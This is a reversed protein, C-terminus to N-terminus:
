CNNIEVNNMKLGKCKHCKIAEDGSTEIKVNNFSVDEIITDENGKIVCPSDSKMRMDSFSVGKIQSLKVGPEVEIRVPHRKSNIVINSFLINSVDASGSRGKALYRNPFDFNIGNNNSSMTINTFTCNRVIHDSPCSIRVCQCTSELTCNSIVVNECIGPTDHVHQMSRLVICDDDTKIFCDSITVDKCSDIDLGDNNIMRQDGIIKIRNINVRECKMLWVTWCPSDVLSVDIMKVDSCKHFMIIRPRQEPKKAFKANPQVATQDYFSVGSANIEGDGTIAINSAHKAGILYKSTGEPSSEHKFGDSIFDDYDDINTSGLIKCGPLLKLEVNSKLELSGTLYIGPEFLVIGGGADYCADIVLQLAKTNLTKGDPCVGHEQVNYYIMKLFKRKDCKVNEFRHVIIGYLYKLYISL